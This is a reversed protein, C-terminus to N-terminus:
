SKEGKFFKIFDLIPNEMPEVAILNPIEYRNKADVFGSMGDGSTILRRQATQMVRGMKTQKGRNDVEAGLIVQDQTLYLVADSQSIYVSSSIDEMDLTYVTFDSSQDPRNKIKRTGVHALFVIAMGKVLRLQECRHVFAAHMGSVESPGNNYGGSAEKVTKVGDRITIEHGFLRHLSTISDIVLTKYDHESRILEDMYADLRASTSLEIKGKSGRARPLRPLMDPKLEDPWSDFVASGDESQIFLAKPFLAGLSTKGVGPTGIITLMPPDTTPKSAQELFTM